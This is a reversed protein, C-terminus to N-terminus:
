KEDKLFHINVHNKFTNEVADINDRRNRSIPMSIVLQLMLPRQTNELSKVLDM